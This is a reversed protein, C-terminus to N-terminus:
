ALKKWSEILQLLDLDSLKGADITETLTLLAAQALLSRSTNVPAPPERKLKPKPTYPTPEQKLRPKPTYPAPLTTADLPEGRLLRATHSEPGLIELVKEVRRYPLVDGRIWFGVSQYTLGLQEAFMEHTWQRERLDALLAQGIMPRNM